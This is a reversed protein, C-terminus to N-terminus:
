HCELSSDVWSSFCGGVLFHNQISDFWEFGLKRAEWALGKSFLLAALGIAWTGIGPTVSNVLWIARGWTQHALIHRVLVYFNVFVAVAIPFGLFLSLPAQLFWATRATAAVVVILLGVITIFLPLELWIRVGQGAVVTRPVLSTVYWATSTHRMLERRISIYIATLGLVYISVGAATLVAALDAVGIM